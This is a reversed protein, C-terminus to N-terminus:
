CCSYNHVLTLTFRQLVSPVLDIYRPSYHCETLINRCFSYELLEKVVSYFSKWCLKIALFFYCQMVNGFLIWPFRSLEFMNRHLMFILLIWSGLVLLCKIRLDNFLEFAGAANTHVLVFMLSGLLALCWIWSCCM